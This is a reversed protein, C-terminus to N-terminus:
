RQKFDFGGSTRLKQSPQPNGGRVGQRKPQAQPSPNRSNISPGFHEYLDQTIDNAPDNLWAMAMEVREQPLMGQKKLGQIYKNLEVDRNARKQAYELMLRNGLKSNVMSPSMAQFLDMEKESISGKTQSIAKFVFEGSLQNFKEANALKEKEDDTFDVGASM